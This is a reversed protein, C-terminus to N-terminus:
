WRLAGASDTRFPTATGVSARRSPRRAPVASAGPGGEPWRASGDDAFVPVGLALALLRTLLGVVGGIMDRSCETSHREALWRQLLLGVLGSAAILGGVILAVTLSSL